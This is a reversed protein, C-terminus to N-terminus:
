DFYYKQLLIIAIAFVAIIGKFTNTAPTEISIFPLTIISMVLAGIGIMITLIYSYEIGKIGDRAWNRIERVRGEELLGLGAIALIISSMWPHLNFLNLSESLIGVFGIVSIWVLSTDFGARTKMKRCMNYTKVKAM